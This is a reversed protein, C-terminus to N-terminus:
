KRYISYNSSDNIAPLDPYDDSDNDNGTHISSDSGLLYQILYQKDNHIMDLWDRLDESHDIYFDSICDTKPWIFKISSPYLSTLTEKLTNTIYDIWERTRNNYYDEPDLGSSDYSCTLIASWLYSARDQISTYTRKQWGYEGPTFVISDVFLDIEAEKNVVIAHVSSSNTEFLNRRTVKKM